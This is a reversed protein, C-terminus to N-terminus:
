YDTIPLRYDTFSQLDQLDQRFFTKIGPEPEPKGIVSLRDGIVKKKGIVQIGVVNGKWIGAEVALSCEGSFPM